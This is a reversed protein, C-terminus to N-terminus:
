SCMVEAVAVEEESLATGFIQASRACSDCVWQLIHDGHANSALYPRAPERCQKWDSNMRTPDVRVMHWCLGPPPNVNAFRIVAEDPKM